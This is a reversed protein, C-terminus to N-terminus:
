APAKHGAGHSSERLAAITQEENTRVPERGEVTEGPPRDVNWPAVAKSRENGRPIAFTNPDPRAALNPIRFFVGTSFPNEKREIRFGCFRSDSFNAINSMHLQEPFPHNEHRARPHESPGRRIHGVLSLLAM